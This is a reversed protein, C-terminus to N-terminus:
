RSRRCRPWPPSPARPRVHDITSDVAVSDTVGGVDGGCGTEAPDGNVALPYVVDDPDDVHLVHHPGLALAPGFLGDGATIRWAWNTGSLLRIASTMRSICAPLCCRAITTSSYPPVAPRIVSSSTQLLEHPLNGVLVVDGPRAHLFKRVLCSCTSPASDISSTLSSSRSPVARPRSPCRRPAGRCGGRAHGRLPRPRRNSPWRRMALFTSPRRM